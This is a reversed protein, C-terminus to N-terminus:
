HRAAFLLIGTGGALRGLGSTLMATTRWAQNSQRALHDELQMKQGATLSQYSQGYYSPAYQQAAGQPDMAACGGLTVAALLGTAVLARVKCGFKKTKM